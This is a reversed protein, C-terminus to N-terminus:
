TDVLSQKIPTSDPNFPDREISEVINFTDDVLKHADKTCEQLNDSKVLAVLVLLLIKM